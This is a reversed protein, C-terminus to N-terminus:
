SIKKAENAKATLMRAMSASKANHSATKFVELYSPPGKIPEDESAASIIAMQGTGWRKTRSQKINEGTGTQARLLVPFSKHPGNKYDVSMKVTCDTWATIDPDNLAKTKAEASPVPTYAHTLIENLRAQIEENRTRMQTETFQSTDVQRWPKPETKEGKLNKDICWELTNFLHLDIREAHPLIPAHTLKFKSEKLCKRKGDLFSRTSKEACMLEYYKDLASSRPNVAALQGREIPEVRTTHQKSPTAKTGTGAHLDTSPLTLHMNAGEVGPGPSMPSGSRSHTYPGPSQSSVNHNSPSNPGSTSHEAHRNHSHQAHHHEDGPLELAALAENDMGNTPSHSRSALMDAHSELDSDERQLPVPSPSLSSRRRTLRRAPTGTQHLSTHSANGQSSAVSGSRASLNDLNNNPQPSVGPSVGPSPSPSRSHTGKSNGHSHAISSQTPTHAHNSLPLANHDILLGDHSNKLEATVTKQAGKSGDHGLHQESRASNDDDSGGDRGERSEDQLRQRRLQERRTPKSRVPKTKVPENDEVDCSVGIKALAKQLRNSTALENFNDASGRITPYRTNWVEGPKHRKLVPFDLKSIDSLFKTAEDVEHMHAAEFKKIMEEVQEGIRRELSSAILTHQIVRRSNPTPVRAFREGVPVVKEEVDGTLTTKVTKHKLLTASLAPSMARGGPSQSRDRLTPSSDRSLDNSCSDATRVRQVLLPADRKSEPSVPRWPEATSLKVKERPGRPIIGPMVGFNQMMEPSPSNSKSKMSILRSESSAASIPQKSNLEALDEATVTDNNFAVSKSSKSSKIISNALPTRPSPSGGSSQQQSPSHLQQQQQQQQEILKNTQRDVWMYYMDLKTLAKSLSAALVQKLLEPDLSQQVSATSDGISELDVELNSAAFSVFDNEKGVPFPTLTSQSTASDSFSQDDLSNLTNTIFNHLTAATMQQSGSKTLKLLSEAQEAIREKYGQMSGKLKADTNRILALSLNSLQNSKVDHDHLEHELINEQACIKFFDQFKKRAGKNLENAHHLATPTLKRMVLGGSTADMLSIVSSECITNTNNITAPITPKMQETGTGHHRHGHGHGHKHHQQHKAGNVPPFGQSEKGSTIQILQTGRNRSQILGIKPRNWGDPSSTQSQSFEDIMSKETQEFMQTALAPRHLLMMPSTFDNVSATQSDDLYSKKRSGRFPRQYAISRRLSHFHAFLNAQEAFGLAPTWRPLDKYALACYRSSGLREALFTLGFGVAEFCVALESIAVATSEFRGSQGLIGEDGLISGAGLHFCNDASCNIFPQLKGNQKSESVDLVFEGSVILYVSNVSEGKCFLIEGRSLTRKVVSKAAQILDGASIKHALGSQRLFDIAESPLAGDLKHDGRQYSQLELFNSKPLVLLECGETGAKITAARKVATLTNLEGFGAPATMHALTQAFDLLQRVEDWRKRKTLGQLKLLSISNQQFQVVECEGRLITFHGDEQKPLNGQFVIGDRGYYCELRLQQLANVVVKKNKCNMLLRAIGTPDANGYQMVWKFIVELELESRVSDDGRLRLLVTRVDAIYDHDISVNKVWRNWCKQLSRQKNRCVIRFVMRAMGTLEVVPDEIVDDIAHQDKSKSRGQHKRFVNSHQRMYLKKAINDGVGM